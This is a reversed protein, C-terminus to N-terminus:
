GSFKSFLKLISTHHTTHRTVWCLLYATTVNRVHKFARGEVCAFKIPSGKSAMEVAAKVLEPKMEECYSCEPSLSIHIKM